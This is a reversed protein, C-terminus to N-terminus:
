PKPPPLPAPPPKLPAPKPLKSEDPIHIKPLDFKALREGKIDARRAVVRYSFAGSPTGSKARVAFGAATQGTVYLDNHGDYETLFVHYDDTHVIQAFTKDLTVDARGNILKAKGFDEFWAEPSEMCYVLRHQGSADKVAASKAGGVVAFDGQVVTAGQFYAAYATNVTATAALAAVGATGTIATLGSYGTATTSGIVGYGSLSTGLVGALMGAGYTVGVVGNGAAAAGYVGTTNTGYSYNVGYVAIASAATSGSAIEGQVGVGGAGTSANRGKVAATNAITSSGTIDGEVGIAYGLGLVAANQNYASGLTTGLLANSNTSVGSVGIGYSGGDGRVGSHGQNYAYGYVGANMNAPFGAPKNTTDAGYMGAASGRSVGSIGVVNTDGSSQFPSASCDFLITGRFGDGTPNGLGSVLQTRLNAYNTSGDNSGLVLYGDPGTGSTAAVPESARKAVMGAVVAGAAALIGRRKLTTSAAQEDSHERVSREAM